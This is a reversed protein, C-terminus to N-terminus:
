WWEFGVFGSGSTKFGAWAPRTLNNNQFFIDESQFCVRGIVPRLGSFLIPVNKFLFRIIFKIYFCLFIINLFSKFCVNLLLAVSAFHLFFRFVLKHKTTICFSEQIFRVRLLSAAVKNRETKQLLGSTQRSDQARLELSVPLQRRQSGRLAWRPSRDEFKRSRRCRSLCRSAVSWSWRKPMGGCLKQIWILVVLQFIGKQPGPMQSEQNRNNPPQPM